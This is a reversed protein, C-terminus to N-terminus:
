RHENNIYWLVQKTEVFPFTFNILFRFFLLHQHPLILLIKRDLPRHIQLLQRNRINADAIVCKYIAFDM